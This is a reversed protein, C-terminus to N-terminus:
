RSGRGDTLLHPFVCCRSCHSWLQSGVGSCPGTMQFSARLCIIDLHADKGAADPVWRGRGREEKNGVRILYVALTGASICSTHPYVGLWRDERLHEALWPV